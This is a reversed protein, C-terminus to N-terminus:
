LASRCVFSFSDLKLQDASSNRKWNSVIEFCFWIYCIFTTQMLLLLRWLVNWRICTSSNLELWDSPIVDVLIVDVLIVDLLIVDLLIVDVLIVDLPIVDVLLYFHCWRNSQARFNTWGARSANWDHAKHIHTSSVPVRGGSSPLLARVFAVNFRRICVFAEIDAILVSM